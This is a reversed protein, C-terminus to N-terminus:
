LYGGARWGGRPSVLRVTGTPKSPHDEHVGTVGDSSGITYENM